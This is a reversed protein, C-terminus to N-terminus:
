VKMKCIRGEGVMEFSNQMPLPPQFLRFQSECIYADKDDLKAVNFRMFDKIHMVHCQPGTILNKPVTVMNPYGGDCTCQLVEKAMFKRGPFTAVQKPFLFREGVVAHEQVQKIFLIEKISQKVVHPQNSEMYPQPVVPEKVYVFRGPIIAPQQLDNM